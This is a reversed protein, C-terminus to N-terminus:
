LTWALFNQMADNHIRHMMPKTPDSTCKIGDIWCSWGEFKIYALPAPIQEVFIRDVWAKAWTDMIENLQEPHSLDEFPVFDTHHGKVKVFRVKISHDHDLKYV